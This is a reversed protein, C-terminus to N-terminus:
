GGLFRQPIPNDGTESAWFITVVWWRSGDHLLQFSNVGRAFPEADDANRRSDYASMLHVVPGYREVVRGIETEFFGNQVLGPDAAEIYEEPSWVRHGVGGDPTPGTPILRAGPSMLSRFRDWDRPQGAPGSISAYVAAMIGDLSSVDAPEPTVSQTSGVAPTLVALAVAMGVTWWMRGKM